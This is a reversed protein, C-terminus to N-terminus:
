ESKLHNFKIKHAIKNIHAFFSESRKFDKWHAISVRRRRKQSGKTVM